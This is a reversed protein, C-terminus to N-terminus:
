FSGCATTATGGGRETLVCLVKDGVAYPESEQYDIHLEMNMRDPALCLGEETPVITGCLTGGSPNEELVSLVEAEPSGDERPPLQRCLVKDGPM